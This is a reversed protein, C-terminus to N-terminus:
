DKFSKDDGPLMSVMAIIILLTFFFTLAFGVKFGWSGLLGFRGSATFIVSVIFVLLVVGM